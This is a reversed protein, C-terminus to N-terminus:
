VQEECAMTPLGLISKKLLPTKDLQVKGCIGCASLWPDQQPVGSSLCLLGNYKALFRVRSYHSGM